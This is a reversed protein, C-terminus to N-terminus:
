PQQTLQRSPERKLSPVTLHHFQPPGRHQTGTRKLHHTPQTQMKTKLKKKKRQAAEDARLGLTYEKFRRFKWSNTAKYTVDLEQALGKGEERLAKREARRVRWIQDEDAGAKDM